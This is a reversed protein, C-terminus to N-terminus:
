DLPDFRFVVQNEEGGAIAEFRVPKRGPQVQAEQPNRSEIAPLSRLSEVVDAARIDGRIGMEMRRDMVESLTLDLMAALDRLDIRGDRYLEGPYYEFGVWALKRFSQAQDIKEQRSVFEVAKEIDEPIRLTKVKMLLKM